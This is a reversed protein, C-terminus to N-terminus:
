NTLLFLRISCDTPTETLTHGSHNSVTTIITAHNRLLFNSRLASKACSCGTTITHSDNKYHTYTASIHLMSASVSIRLATQTPIIDWYGRM